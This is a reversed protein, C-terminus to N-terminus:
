KTLVSLNVFKEKSFISERLDTEIINLYLAFM